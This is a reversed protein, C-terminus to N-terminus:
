LGRSLDLLQIWVKSDGVGGDITRRARLYIPMKIDTVYNSTFLGNELIVWDLAPDIRSEIVVTDGASINVQLFARKNLNLDPQSMVHIIGTEGEATDLIQKAGAM